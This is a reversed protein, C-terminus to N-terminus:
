LCYVKIMALVGLIFAFIVSQKLVYSFIEGERGALKAASAAVALAQPAIMKGAVTGCSLISAALVPDFGLREASVVELAGFMANTATNSGVIFSGLLALLPTCFPYLSGTAAFVLGLTSSMGSFNIIFALGFVSGMNITPWKMQRLTGALTRIYGAPSIRLWWATLWTALLIATGMSSLLNVTLLAPLLEAQFGAPPVKMVMNDLGYIPLVITGADLFRNVAPINWLMVTMTALIFPFWERGLDLWRLDTKGAPIEDNAFRYFTVPPQRKIIGLLVGLSILAPIVGALYPGMYTAVLWTTFAYAFSCCFIHLWVEQAKRWGALAIVLWGPILFSMFPIIQAITLSLQQMDLGTVKSMVVVPIGIAGYAAPVASAVLCLCAARLAPFGLSILISTSIAVPAVFGAISDLFATFCFGILLLQLRRDPTLQEMTQRMKQFHGHDVVLNYLLFAFFIIYVIPFLGYLFGYLGSLVTILPPMGWAFAILITVGLTLISAIYGKVRIVTLLFLMILVPLLAVFFSVAQNGFPNYSQIWMM